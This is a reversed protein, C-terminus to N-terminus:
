AGVAGRREHWARLRAAIWAADPPLPRPAPVPAAYDVSLAYFARAYVGALIAGLDLPVDAYEGTLPVAITPLADRLHWYWALYHHRGFRRKLAYYDGKGEVEVLRQGGRLLDIEVWNTRSRLIVGRKRLFQARGQSGPVKNAPSLLEITTVVEHGRADLIEISRDRIEEDYVPEPTAAPSIANPATAVGGGPLPRQLLYFDPVVEQRALEEADATHVRQGIRVIFGPAVSAALANRIATILGSHVDPWLGPEELYPDMVPFPGQM